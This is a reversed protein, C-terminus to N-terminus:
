AADDPAAQRASDFWPLAEEYRGAGALMRARDAAPMTEWHASQWPLRISGLILLGAVVVTALAVASKRVPAEVPLAAGLLAGAAFGGVHALIDFSLVLGAAHLLVLITVAVRNGPRAFIPGWAGVLRRETELAAGLPGFIAGPAGAFVVDQGLLSAAVGAVGSIGCTLAFWVSALRPELLLGLSLLASLNFALHIPGAHFFPATAPVQRASLSEPSMASM